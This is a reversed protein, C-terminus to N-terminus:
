WIARTQVTRVFQLPYPANWRPDDRHYVVAIASGAPPPNRNADYRGSCKAGSLAEFEYTVRNTQGGHGDNHVRKSGTVRGSAARGEELLRWQRRITSAILAAAVLAALVVFPALFLPPGDMPEYGSVWSVDPSAPLYLVGVSQGARLAGRRREPLLLRGTYTRDGVQYRYRVERLRREGRNPGVSVVVGASSVADRTRAEHRALLRLHAIVIATGGSVGGLVIATAIVALAVGAATLRVDRPIGGSLEPPLAIRDRARALTTSIM